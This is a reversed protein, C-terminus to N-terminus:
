QIADVAYVNYREGKIDQWIEWKSANQWGEKALLKRLWGIAKGKSKHQAGNEPSWLWLSVKQKQREAYMAMTLPEDHVKVEHKELILIKEM